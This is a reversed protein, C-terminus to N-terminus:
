SDSRLKRRYDDFRGQPAAFLIGQRRLVLVGTAILIRLDLLLSAKEVYEVDRRLKEEWSIDQRGCIQALGTLGPKALHRRREQLTYYPLYESLLPRPGVLSMEGKLVNILQPLEDISCRRLKLGLRTVRQEDPLQRGERDFAEVMTRFKIVKFSKEHLGPREQTFFVPRGMRWWILGASVLLVPSLFILVALSIIIDLTRKIM